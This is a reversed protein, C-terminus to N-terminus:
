ILVGKNAPTRFVRAEPYGKVYPEILTDGQAVIANIGLFSFQVYSMFVGLWDLDQAVVEMKKQYNIGNDKLVKATAIIMGGGGTSPENVTIKEESRIRDEDLGLKACLESLHFPTFFQGLRGNGAGSLMFVGGLIDAMEEELAEVLYANMETFRTMENPQYKGALSKYWEERDNWIKDHFLTCTNSISLGLMTVWDSFITYPSHGGHFDNILKLIDKEAQTMTQEVGKDVQEPDQETGEQEWGPSNRGNGDWVRMQYVMYAERRISAPDGPCNGPQMRCDMHDQGSSRVTSVAEIGCVREADKCRRM